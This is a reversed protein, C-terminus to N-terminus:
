PLAEERMRVPLITIPLGALHLRRQLDYTVFSHLLRTWPTEREFVLQGGFFVARPFEKAIQICIEELDGTVDAGVTVRTEFYGNLARVYPEYRRLARETEERLSRVEEESQFHSYDVQGVSVIVFNKYHNPYIRHLTLLAHVGLGNFGSALIVATPANPDKAAPPRDSGPLDLGILRKDLLRLLRGIRAYHFRVAICVLAMGTTVLLTIWAGETFKYVVNMVLIIGALVFGFGNILFGRLWPAGGRRQKLWHVVMGLQALVFTIFVNIAYLVVLIRVDGQTGLLFVFAGLSMLAVGDAVVLRDSLHAFRGPVWRDHAMIALARPGGILGAQAAVFLLLGEALLTVVVLAAGGPWDAAVRNFLTANLTLHGEKEANVLLYGILIGAAMISLSIAMYLMTRKGTQVRPERLIQMSDSVAEIGTYTGAGHTYARFLVGMLVAIGVTGAGAEWEANLQDMVQPIKGGHVFFVGVLMLAHTVLFLMFIPLLFLISEKVGRLNLLTLMGLIGVAALVKFQAIEAPLFSFIQDVGSAVSITITLSYDVILACGSVLGPGRGLLRTAVIYGGGGGPFLEIIKAYGASLVAVTVIVMIALPIALFHHQGLGLFAEEPGYCISSLGDAGLGVWAFFAILALRHIAGPKTPDKPPGLFFERISTM